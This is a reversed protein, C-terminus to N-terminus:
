TMPTSRPVPAVSSESGPSTAIRAEPASRSSPAAPTSMRPRLHAEVGALQADGRVGHHLLEAGEVLPHAREPAHAGTVGLREDLTRREGARLGRGDERVLRHADVALLD